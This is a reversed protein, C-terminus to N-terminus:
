CCLYQALSSACFTPPLAAPMLKHFYEENDCPLGDLGDEEVSPTDIGILEVTEGPLKALVKINREEADCNRVTLLAAKALASSDHLLESTYIWNIIENESSMCMCRPIVLDGDEHSNGGVGGLVITVGGFPTHRLSPAAVDRLLREVCELAFRSQMSIEDWVIVDVSHLM